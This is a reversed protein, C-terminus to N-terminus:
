VSQQDLIFDGQHTPLGRSDTNYKVLCFEPLRSGPCIRDRNQANGGWQKKKKPSTSECPSEKKVMQITDSAHGPAKPSNLSQAICLRKGVSEARGLAPSLNRMGKLLVLDADSAGQYACFERTHKRNNQLSYRSTWWVSSSLSVAWNFSILLFERRTPVM